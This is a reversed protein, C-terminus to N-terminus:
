FLYSDLIKCDVFSGNKIFILNDDSIKLNFKSLNFIKSIIFQSTEVHTDDVVGRIIIIKAETLVQNFVDCSFLQKEGGNIDIKVIDFSKFDYKKMFYDIKKVQIESIEKLKNKDKTILEFNENNETQKGIELTGDFNSIATGDVLINNFNSCNKKLLEYNKPEAEIALIRSKPMDYLFRITQSGINAGLDLIKIQKDQDIKFSYSINMFQSLAGFDGKPRFYFNSNPLKISYYSNKNKFFIMILVLKITNLVGITYFCKSVFYIKFSIKKLIM